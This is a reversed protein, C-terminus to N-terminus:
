NKFDHLNLIIDGSVEAVITLCLSFALIPVKAYESTVISLANCVHHRTM